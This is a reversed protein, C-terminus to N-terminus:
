NQAQSIRNQSMQKPLRNQDVEQFKSSQNSINQNTYAIQNTQKNVPVGREFMANKRLKDDRAKQM